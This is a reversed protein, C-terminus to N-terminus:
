RDTAAAAGHRPQSREMTSRRVADLTKTFRTREELPFCEAVVVARLTTSRIATACELPFGPAEGQVVYEIEESAIAWKKHNRVKPVPTRKVVYEALPPQLLLRQAHPGSSGRPIGVVAKVADLTEGHALALERRDFATVYLSDPKPSVYKEIVVWRSVQCEIRDLENSLLVPSNPCQAASGDALAEHTVVAFWLYLLSKSLRTM